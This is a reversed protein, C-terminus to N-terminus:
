DGLSIGLQRATEIMDSDLPVTKLEHVAEALPVAQIKQGKLAVM